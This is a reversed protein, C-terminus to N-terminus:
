GSKVVRLPSIKLINEVSSAGDIRSLIFGESPELDLKPLQEIGITLEPVSTLGLGEDALRARVNYEM